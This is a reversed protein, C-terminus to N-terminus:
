QQCGPVAKGWERLGKLPRYDMGKLEFVVGESLRSAIRPLRESLESLTSNTTIVTSLVDDSMYRADILSDLKTIAWDTLREAGLDDLCLWDAKELCDWGQDFLKYNDVSFCSKFKSLTREVPCFLTDLPRQNYYWEWLLALALHTKGTGPPGSLTIFPPILVKEREPDDEGMKELTPYYFCYNAISAFASALDKNVKFTNLRYTNRTNQPLALDNLTFM